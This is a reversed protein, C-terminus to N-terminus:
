SAKRTFAIIASVVQECDIQDIPLDTVEQLEVVALYDGWLEVYDDCGEHMAHQIDEVLAFGRWNDTLDVLYVWIRQTDQERLGDGWMVQKSCVRDLFAAEEENLVQSEPVRTPFLELTQTM